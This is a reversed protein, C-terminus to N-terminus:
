AGSSTYFSLIERGGSVLTRSISAFSLPFTHFNGPPFHSPLSLWNVTRRVHLFCSQKVILPYSVRRRTLFIESLRVCVKKMFPQKRKQHLPIPADSIATFIWSFSEFFAIHEGSGSESTPFRIFRVSRHVRPSVNPIPPHSVSHFVSRM